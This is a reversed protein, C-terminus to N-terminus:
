VPVPQADERLANKEEEKQVTFVLGKESAGVLVGDGGKIAGDLIEEALKDELMNQITRRLPRAGYKDDYGKEILLEAAEPTIELSLAMQEKTRKLIGKLMIAAISKMHEKNLQHFVIIDDIRNLFEPKFLKKVEGM